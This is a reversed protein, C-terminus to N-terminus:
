LGLQEFEIPAYGHTSLWDSIGVWGSEEGAVTLGRAYAEDQKRWKDVSESLKGDHDRVLLLDLGDNYVDILLMKDTM